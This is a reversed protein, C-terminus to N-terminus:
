FWFITNKIKSERFTVLGIKDIVLVTYVTIMTNM